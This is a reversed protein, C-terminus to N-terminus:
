VRSACNIGVLWIVGAMKTWSKPQKPKTKEKGQRAETDLYVGRLESPFRGIAVKWGFTPHDKPSQYIKVFHLKSSSSLSMSM